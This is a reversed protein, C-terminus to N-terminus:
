KRALTAAMKRALDAYEENLYERCFADSLSTVEDYVAQLSEPVKLPDRTKMEREDKRM